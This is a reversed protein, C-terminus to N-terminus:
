WGKWELGLELRLWDWLKTLSKNGTAGGGGALGWPTMVPESTVSTGDPLQAARICDAEATCLIEWKRSHNILSVECSKSDIKREGYKWWYVRGKVEKVQGKWKKLFLKEKNTMHNLLTIRRILTFPREEQWQLTYKQLEGNGRSGSWVIM